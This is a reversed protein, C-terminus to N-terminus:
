FYILAILTAVSSLFRISLAYTYIPSFKPMIANSKRKGIKEYDFCKNETRNPIRDQYVIDKQADFARKCVWGIRAWFEGYVCSKCQKTNTMIM